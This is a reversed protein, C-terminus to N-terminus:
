RWFLGFPAENIDKLGLNKAYDIIENIERKDPIRDIDKHRWAERLPLYQDMISIWIRDKYQSIWDLVKMHCCHVHNPLVLIRVIIKSGRGCMLSLAEKATELYRDVGSLRKACQNNGFTFDPMWVDVAGDMLKLATKGLYPGCNMVVPLSFSKPATLLLKLIGPSSVMPEGGVLELCNATNHKSITEWIQPDLPRAEAVPSQNEPAQCFACKMPCFSLALNWAPNIPAEEAIHEFLGNVLADAGAGCKGRVEYRNTKCVWGCLDCKRLIRSGLECKLDLLSVEGQHQLPIKQEMVTDHVAWVMGLDMESLEERTLNGIFLSRLKQFEPVFDEAPPDSLVRFDPDLEMLFPLMSPDPDIIRLSGDIPVVVSGKKM